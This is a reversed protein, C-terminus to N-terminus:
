INPLGIVRGLITPSQNVILVRVTDGVTPSTYSSLYPAPVTNPGITLFVAAVGDLSAGATVTAVVYNQISIQQEQDSLGQIKDAVGSMDVLGSVDTM